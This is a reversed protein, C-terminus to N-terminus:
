SSEPRPELRPTVIPEGTQSDFFPSRKHHGRLRWGALMRSYRFLMGVLAPRTAKLAKAEEKSFQGNVRVIVPGLVDELSRDFTSRDICAVSVGVFPVRPKSLTNALPTKCCATHWRLPGKPTLRLCAIHENGEHFVFSAPSVQFIDSGGRDDLMEEERGLVHAYRQCYKCYCMVRNVTKRSVNRLSGKVAGCSCRVPVDVM